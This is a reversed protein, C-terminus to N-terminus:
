RARMAGGYQKIGTEITEGKDLTVILAPCDSGENELWASSLSSLNAMRTTESRGMLYHLLLM